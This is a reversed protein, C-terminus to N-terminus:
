LVMFYFLTYLFYHYAVLGANFLTIFLELQLLFLASIVAHAAYEPLVFANLKQCLEIPNIFDSELDSFM